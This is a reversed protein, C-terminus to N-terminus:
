SAEKTLNTRVGGQLLVLKPKEKRNPLNNSLQRENDVIKILARLNSLPVSIYTKCRTCAIQFEYGGDEKATEIDLALQTGDPCQCLSETLEVILRRIM